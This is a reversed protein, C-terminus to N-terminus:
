KVPEELTMHCVYHRPLWIGEATLWSQPSYHPWGPTQEEPDVARLDREKPTPPALTPTAWAERREADPVKGPLPAVLRM